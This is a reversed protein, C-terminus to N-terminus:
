FCSLLIPIQQFLSLSCLPLQVLSSLPYLYLWFGNYNFVHIFHLSAWQQAYKIYALWFCRKLGLNWGWFPIFQTTCVQLELTQSISAPLHATWEHECGTHVRICPAQCKRTWARSMGKWNLFTRGVRGMKWCGPLHMGRVWKSGTQKEQVQM